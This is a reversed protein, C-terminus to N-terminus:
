ELFIWGEAEAKEKHTPKRKGAIIRHMCRKSDIFVGIRKEDYRTLTRNTSVFLRETPTAGSIEHGNVREPHETRWKRIREKEILRDVIKGSNSSM